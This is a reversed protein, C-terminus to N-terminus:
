DSRKGEVLRTPEYGGDWSGTMESTYMCKAYPGNGEGVWELVSGARPPSDIM